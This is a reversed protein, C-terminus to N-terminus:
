CLEQEVLKFNIMRLAYGEEQQMDKIVPDAALLAPDPDPGDTIIADHGLTNPMRTQLSQIYTGVSTFGLVMSMDTIRSFDGHKDSPFARLMVISQDSDSSTSLQLMRGDPWILEVINGPLDTAKAWNWVRAQM